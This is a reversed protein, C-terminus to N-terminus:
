IVKGDEEQQEDLGPVVIRGRFKMGPQFLVEQLRDQKRKADLDDLEKETVNLFKARLEHIQQELERMEVEKIARSEEVDALGELDEKILSAVENCGSNDSSKEGEVHSDNNNLKTEVVNEADLLKKLKKEETGDMTSQQLKPWDDIDATNTWEEMTPLTHHPMGAEECQLLHDVYKPVLSLNNDINGSELTSLISEYEKWKNYRNLFADIAHRKTEIGSPIHIWGTTTITSRNNESSNNDEEAHSTTNNNENAYEEASVEAMEELNIDDDSTNPDSMRKTTRCHSVISDVCVCVCM